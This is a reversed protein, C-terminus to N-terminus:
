EVKSLSVTDIWATGAIHSDFRLSGPRVVQITVLQASAPLTIIKETKKWDTTGTFQETKIELYAGPEPCFIHFAIGQDTTIGETRVFASFRYTGPKIFATQSIGGYNVNEKGGFQIRLSHSGTHAVSSDIAVNVDSGSNEMRWDFAIGSGESEFDGNYLWTSELYGTRRDGLFHAWAQAASEYRRSRFLFDVYERALRDDQYNHALIWEWASMTDAVNSRDILYHFYSQTSRQSRPLGNSLIEALPIAEQSYRDFIQGDYPASKDLIRSTQELERKRDHTISYFSAARLQVTPIEPGLTLANSFCYRAHQVQGSKLLADGLDCWRLPAASDRRLAELLEAAPVAGVKGGHSAIERAIAADTDCVGFKCFRGEMQPDSAYKGELLIWAPAYILLLCGLAIAIGRFQVRRLPERDPAQGSSRSPFSAVIGLIWALVLANAPIYLNFDALSHLGIAAIAGACGWALYRTNPDFRRTGTRLTKAFIVLVFGALILFGLAGLETAFELYDNHAFNFDLDVQATQYKLFATDYTGLGSGLLPYAGLLHLSDNWIPVRGEGTKDALSDGFANVMQDPPIFVFMLFFFAVLLVVSWWKKWGKITVVSAVAAMFFLGGLCAVFGMKSLSYSLAILMLTASLVVVCAALTVKARRKKFLAIAYTIALPLVMELLGAFHNKNWYTGAVLEGDANQMFGLAAELAAIGILPIVVVWPQRSRSAVERVLLFVLLYGIMRFLHAFTTTYCISLPSLFGVPMVARLSDLIRGREPSFIRVLFLPLPVLQFVVYAPVLLALWRLRTELLPAAASPPTMMWYLLAGAGILLLSVNWDLLDRGGHQSVAYGLASALVSLYLWQLRASLVNGSEAVGGARQETEFRTM